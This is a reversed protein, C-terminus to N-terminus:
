YVITETTSGLKSVGITFPSLPLFKSLLWSASTRADEVNIALRELVFDGATGTEGETATVVDSLERALIQTLLASTRNDFELGYIPSRPSKTLGVLYSALGAAQSDSVLYPSEIPSWDSDGWRDRSAQDIAKQEVGGVRTVSAGNRVTDASIGPAMARMENAITGVSATQYRTHRSKYVARGFGDSYFIGREAELLAEILELATQSGDASFDPITDGTALQRATPDILGIADLIKGIAAGTTTQGTSAIVPRARQLWYFLDVLELEAFGGRAAIKDRIVRTWGYFCGYTQGAFKARIRCPHLRDALVAYLPGSANHPNYIGEPDRLTLEGSGQLMTALTDSRGREIRIRQVQQSVNDYPGTFDSDFPSVGITDPGGLVSTGIIFAGQAFASWSIEATWVPRAVTASIPAPPSSSEWPAPTVSSVSALSEWPAEISKIVAGPSEAEWPAVRVASIGLTSEWPASVTASVPTTGEAKIEMAAIIWDSLGTWSVGSTTDNIEYQVSMRAEPDIHGSDALETEGSTPTQAGNRSHAIFALCASTTAALAADLTASTSVSTVTSKAIEPQLVFDTADVGTVDVVQVHCGLQSAGYSITLAASGPTAVTRGSFVTMRLLAGVTLDLEQTWAGDLWTPSNLSPLSPGVRSTLVCAIIGASPSPTFPPTDYLAANTTDPDNARLTFALAM